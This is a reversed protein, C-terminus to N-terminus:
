ELGQASKEIVKEDVFTLYMRGQGQIFELKSSFGDSMRGKTMAGGIAEGVQSYSMGTEVKDYAKRTLVPPQASKITVQFTANVRGEQFSITGQNALRVEVGADPLTFSTIKGHMDISTGEASFHWSKSNGEVGDLVTKTKQKGAANNQPPVFAWFIISLGALIAFALAITIALRRM